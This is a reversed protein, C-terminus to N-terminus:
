SRDSARVGPAASSRMVEGRLAESRLAESRLAESRQVISEAAEDYQDGIQRAASWYEQAKAFDGAKMCELGLENLERYTKGLRRTGSFKRMPTVRTATQEPPADPWQAEEDGLRAAELLAHQWELEISREPAPTPLAWFQGSGVALLASIAALGSLTGAVAHHIEGSELWIVGKLAPASLRIMLSRRSMCMCQILDSAGLQDLRGSLMPEGQAAAIIEDAIADARSSGAVVRDAGAVYLPGLAASTEADSVAVFRTQGGAGFRASLESLTHTRHSSARLVVTSFREGQLLVRTVDSTRALLVDHTRNHEYLPRILDLTLEDELESLLIRKRESLVM